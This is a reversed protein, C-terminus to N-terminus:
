EDEEPEGHPEPSHPTPPPYPRELHEVRRGAEDFWADARVALEHLTRRLHAEKNVLRLLNLSDRICMESGVLSSTM